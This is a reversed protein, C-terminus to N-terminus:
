FHLGLMANEARLFDLHRLSIRNDHQQTLLCHAYECDRVLYQRFAYVYQRASVAVARRDAMKFRFYNVDVLLCHLTVNILYHIKVKTYYPHSTIMFWKAIM